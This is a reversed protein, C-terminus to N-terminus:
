TRLDRTDPAHMRQRYPVGHVRAPLDGTATQGRDRGFFAFVLDFEDLHQGLQLYVSAGQGITGLRDDRPDGYTGRLSPVFPHFENDQAQQAASGDVPTLAAVTTASM